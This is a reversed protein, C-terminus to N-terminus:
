PMLYEQITQEIRISSDDNIEVLATLPCYGHKCFSPTVKYAYTQEEEVYLIEDGELSIVVDTDFQLIFTSNITILENTQSLDYGICQFLEVFWGALLDEADFANIKPNTNSFRLSPCIELGDVDGGNCTLIATDSQELLHNVAAANIKHTTYFTFRKADDFM